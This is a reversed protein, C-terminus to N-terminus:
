LLGKDFKRWYDLEEALLPRLEEERNLLDLASELGDVRLIRQLEDNHIFGVPEPEGLVVPIADLVLAQVFRHLPRQEMGGDRVILHGRAASMEQWVTKFIPHASVINDRGRFLSGGFRCGEYSLLEPGMKQLRADAKDSDARSAGFYAFDASKESTGLLKKTLELQHVFIGNRRFPLDLNKSKAAEYGLETFTGQEMHKMWEQRITAYFPSPGAPQWHKMYNTNKARSKALSLITSFRLPLNNDIVLRWVEKAHPIVKATIKLREYMPKSMGGPANMGAQHFWLLEPMTEGDWKKLGTEPARPAVEAQTNTFVNYGLEELQEGMAALETAILSSANTLACNPGMYVVM